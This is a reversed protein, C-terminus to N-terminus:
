FRPKVRKYGGWTEVPEDKKEKLKFYEFGLYENVKKKNVQINALNGRGKEEQIITILGLEVLEKKAYQVTRTCANGLLKSLRGNSITVEKCNKCLNLIKGLVVKANLSLGDKMLLDDPISTYTHERSTPKTREGM